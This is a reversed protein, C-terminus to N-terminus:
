GHSSGLREIEQFIKHGDIQKSREAANASLAGALVTAILSAALIASKM